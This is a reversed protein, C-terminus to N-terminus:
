NRWLGTFSQKSFSIPLKGRCEYEVHLYKYTAKCPDGYHINGSFVTCSSKGECDYNVKTCSKSREECNTNRMVARSPVGSICTSTDKRGYFVDLIHISKGPCSITTSIQRECVDVSQSNSSASFLLLLAFNLDKCVIGFKAASKLKMRCCLFLRM